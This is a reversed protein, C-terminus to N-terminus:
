KCRHRLVGALGVVRSALRDEAERQRQEVDHEPGFSGPSFFLMGGAPPCPFHEECDRGLTELWQPSMDAAIDAPPTDAALQMLKNVVEPRTLVAGCLGVGAKDRRAGDTTEGRDGGSRRNSKYFLVDMM